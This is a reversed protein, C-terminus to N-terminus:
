VREGVKPVSVARNGAGDVDCVFLCADFVSVWKPYPFWWTILVMQLVCVFMYVHFVSVCVHM